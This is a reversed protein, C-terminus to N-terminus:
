AELRPSPGESRSTTRSKDTSPAYKERVVYVRQIGNDFLDSRLRAKDPTQQKGDCFLYGHPKSTASDFIRMFLARNLPMLKQALFLPVSKDMPNKFVVLYHACRVLTTREKGHYFLNQLLLLVSVGAHQVKNCFLDTVGNSDSVTQMLDDIVFLVKKGPRIYDEFTDPLGKVCRIPLNYLRDGVSRIFTTDQGYIWILEDFEKDILRSREELLRQVFRTKGSLPAGAVIASFPVKLRADFVEMGEGTTLGQQIDM